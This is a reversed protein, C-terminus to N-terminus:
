ASQSPDAGRDRRLRQHIGCVLPNRYVNLHYLMRVDDTWRRHWEMVKGFFEIRRIQGGDFLSQFYLYRLLTAPSLSASAADYATKLVVLIGDDEICLDTAVVHGQIVLRYIRGKGAGCFIEFVNRYFVGQANDVSVATGTGLKWGSGELRGYDAIAEAVRASDDVVDLQFSVKDQALRAFQRKVNTRLNKSRSAWYAVFPTQPIVRATEIYDLSRVCSADPSRPLLEPDQQTLAGVLAIGPLSPLLRRLAEQVRGSRDHVFAGLPLQSPQFTEWLGPSRTTLIAMAAPSEDSGYTAFWERGTGFAQLAPAIFDAKMFPPYGGAVVVRDWTSARKAFDTSPALRWRLDVSCTSGTM